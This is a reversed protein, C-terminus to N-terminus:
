ARPGILYNPAKEDYRRPEKPPRDQCSGLAVSPKPVAPFGELVRQDRVVDARGRAFCKLMAPKARGTIRYPFPGIQHGSPPNSGVRGQPWRIKLGRGVMEM